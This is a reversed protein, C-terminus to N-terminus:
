AGEPAAGARQQERQPDHHPDRHEPPREGSLIALDDEHARVEHEGLALAQGQAILREAVTVPVAQVTGALRGILPRVFKTRM